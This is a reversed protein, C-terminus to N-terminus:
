VMDCICYSRCSLMNSLLFPPVIDRNILCHYVLLGESFLYTHERKLTFYKNRHKLVWFLLPSPLIFLSFLLETFPYLVPFFILVKAVSDKWPFFCTFELFFPVFINQLGGKESFYCPSFLWILKRRGVRLVQRFPVSSFDRIRQSIPKTVASLDFQAQHWSDSDLWLIRYLIAHLQRTFRRSLWLDSAPLSSSM